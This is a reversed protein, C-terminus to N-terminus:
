LSPSFWTKGCKLCELQYGAVRNAKLINSHLGVRKENCRLCPIDAMAMHTEEPEERAPKEEAALRGTRLEVASMEVVASAKLEGDILRKTLEVSNKLNFRLQRMKQQYKALNDGRTIFCARELAVLASIVVKPHHEKSSRYAISNREPLHTQNDEVEEEMIEGEELSIEPKEEEMETDYGLLQQTKLLLHDIEVQKHKEFDRDTIWWLVQEDVDYVRLSIFGPHQTRAPIKDVSPVFHVVCAHMLCVCPIEEQHFSYFLERDDYREWRRGFRDSVDEPRYLYQCMVMLEGDSDETIQKIIAIKPKKTADEPAIFTADGVEFRFKNNAFSSHYAKEMNGEQISM